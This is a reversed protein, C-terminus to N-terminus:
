TSGDSPSSMSEIWQNTEPIRRIAGHFVWWMLGSLVVAVMFLTTAMWQQAALLFVARILSWLGLVGAFWVYRRAGRPNQAVNLDIRQLLGVKVPRPASVLADQRM